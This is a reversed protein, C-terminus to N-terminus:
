AILKLCKLGQHCPKQTFHRDAKVSIWSKMRFSSRLFPLTCHVCKVTTYNDGSNPVFGITQPFLSVKEPFGSRCQGAFRGPGLSLKLEPTQMSCSICCICLSFCLSESRLPTQAPLLCATPLFARPKLEEEEWSCCSSQSPHASAEM